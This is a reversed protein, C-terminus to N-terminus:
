PADAHVARWDRIGRCDHIAEASDLLGKDTSAALFTCFACQSEIILSRNAAPAHETRFFPIAEVPPM